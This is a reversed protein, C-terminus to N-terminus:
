NSGSRFGARPEIVVESKEDVPVTTIPYLEGPQPVATIELRSVSPDLGGIKFRGDKDTTRPYEGESFGTM